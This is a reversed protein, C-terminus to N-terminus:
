EGMEEELDAMVDDYSKAAKATFYKAKEFKQRWASQNYLAHFVARCHGNTMELRPADTDKPQFLVRIVYGVLTSHEDATWATVGRDKAAKAGLDMLEGAKKLADEIKMVNAM